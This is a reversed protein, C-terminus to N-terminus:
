IELPRLLILAPLTPWFGGSIKYNRIANPVTQGSILHKHKDQDLLCVSFTTERIRFYFFGLTTNSGIASLLEKTEHIQLAM